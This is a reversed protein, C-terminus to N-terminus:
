IAMVEKFDEISVEGIDTGCQDFLSNYGWPMHDNLMSMSLCLNNTMKRTDEFVRMEGEGKFWFSKGAPHDLKAVGLSDEAEVSLVAEQLRQLASPLGNTVADSKVRLMKFMKRRGLQLDNVAKIQEFFKTVTNLSASRLGDAKNAVLYINPVALFRDNNDDNTRLWRCKDGPQYVPPGGYCICRIFPPKGGLDVDGSLLKMTLLPAIGAGLSYGTVLVGYDPYDRRAKTLAESAKEIINDCGMAMGRHARGEMFPVAEAALDLFVDMMKPVPIMRTGCVNVLIVQHHHILVLAFDPCHGDELDESDTTHAMIIDNDPMGTHNSLHDILGKTNEEIGAEDDQKFGRLGEGIKVSVHWYSGFVQLLSEQDENDTGDQSDDMESLLNQLKVLLAVTLLTPRWKGDDEESEDGLNVDDDAIRAKIKDIVGM